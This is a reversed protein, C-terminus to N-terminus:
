IAITITYMISYSNPMHAKVTNSPLKYEKNRRQPVNIKKNEM